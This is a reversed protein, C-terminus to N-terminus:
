VWCLGGFKGCELGLYDERGVSGYWSGSLRNELRVRSFMSFLVNMCKYEYRFKRVYGKFKLSFWNERRNRVM